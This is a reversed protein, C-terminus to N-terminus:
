FQISSHEVMSALLTNEVVNLEPLLYYFQFVFGFETNRLESRDSSSLTAIDRGQYEIQGSDAEDLAGLLHLLTSKGSGSRGEIALFEGPKVSLDVQKLVTVVSDGMKFTKKIGSARLIPSATSRAAFSSSQTTTM